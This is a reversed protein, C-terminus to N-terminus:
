PFVHLRSIDLGGIFRRSIEFEEDTEGRTGVILDVGIFAGPMSERIARVKGAYLRSDYHRHRLRLVEESGCQRPTHYRPMLRKSEDVVRM